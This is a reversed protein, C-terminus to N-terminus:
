EKSMEISRAKAAEVTRAVLEDISSRLVSLGAATTGNPSTVQERLRTPSDESDKALCAAGWVTEKALQAALEPALGAQKAAHEMAEIFAFVYAPGSGAVATYADMEAEEIPYVSGLSGLLKNVDKEEAEKLPRETVYATAGKGVRGPTNPMTRIILAARPFATRLKALSAGALVSIVTCQISPGYEAAIADLQQPKFALVVSDCHTNLEQPTDLAQVGTQAAFAKASDGNKSICFLKSAHEAHNAIFGRMMAKAMNGCGWFGFSSM